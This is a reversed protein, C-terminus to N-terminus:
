PQHGKRCYCRLGLYHHRGGALRGGHDDAAGVAGKRQQHGVCGAVRQRPGRQQEVQWGAAEIHRSRHVTGRLKVDAVEVLRFEVNGVDQVIGGMRDFIVCPEYAPIGIVLIEVIDKCVAAVAAAAGVGRQLVIVERREDDRVNRVARRDDGHVLTEEAIDGDFLLPQVGGEVRQEQQILVARVNFYQRYADAGEDLVGTRAGQQGIGDDNRSRVKRAAVAQEIVAFGDHDALLDPQQATGVAM